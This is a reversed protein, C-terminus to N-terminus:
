SGLIWELLIDGEAEQGGMARSKGGSILYGKM